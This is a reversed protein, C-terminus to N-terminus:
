KLVVRVFFDQETSNRVVVLDSEASVIIGTDGASASSREGEANFALYLQVDRPARGLTHEIEYTTGGDFAVWLCGGAPPFPSSQWSNAAADFDSCPLEAATLRVPDDASATGCGALAFALALTSALARPTM